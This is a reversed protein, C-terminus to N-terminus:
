ILIPLGTESTDRSIMQIISKKSNYFYANGEARTTPEEGM